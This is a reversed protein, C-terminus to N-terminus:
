AVAELLRPATTSDGRNERLLGQAEEDKLQDYFEDIDLQSATWLAEATLAGRETLITTLHTSPVDKRSLMDTEAKAKTRPGRAGSRKPKGSASPTAPRSHIRALLEAAPEDDPDQPVLEGRFAKALTSPTLKDVLQRVANWRCDLQAAFPLLAEMRRVIEQQEDLLPLVAPAALVTQQNIKPMNGATGTANERFFSRVPESSLLYHLFPTVIRANARCKMMLDPYIFTEGPGDFVASVGVYELTNARQILIDGPVLWLHSDPPIEEDIYKSHEGRFIGTTTATLTLSKVSTPREVARPSYGNRPKGELLAAVTTTEWGALDRGRAERWERTLEGSTAAALVSQRFRKLITPVRDLRQRCANVRALLADLKDAIRKQEPLPAVSVPISRMAAQTLKLRTSGTVFGNYDFINLYGALYRRDAAADIARLVHAHNNVWCKGRVLYAKHRLLDFFPVGDEGLLILPEDYLFDDIEGVQGTAGYYPFLAHALKGEIRKERETANLPVRASDLIDVLAELPAEAWGPPLESM